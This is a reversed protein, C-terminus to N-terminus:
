NLLIQTSLSSVFCYIYTTHAVDSWKVTKTKIADHGKKQELLVSIWSLKKDDSNLGSNISDSPLNESQNLFDGEVRTNVDTTQNSKAKM